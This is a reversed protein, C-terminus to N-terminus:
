IGEQGHSVTHVLLITASYRSCSKFARGVSVVFVFGGILLCALDPRKRVDSKTTFKRTAVM